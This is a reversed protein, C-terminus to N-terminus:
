INSIENWIWIEYEFKMNRLHKGKFSLSWASDMAWTRTGWSFLGTDQCGLKCIQQWVVVTSSVSLADATIDDARQFRVHTKWTNRFCMLKWTKVRVYRTANGELVDGEKSRLGETELREWNKLCKASKGWCLNWTQRVDHHESVTKREKFGDMWLIWGRM